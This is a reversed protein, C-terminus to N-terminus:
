REFERVPRNSEDLVQFRLTRRQGAPLTPNAVALRYGGTAIALGAPEHSTAMEGGDHTKAPEDTKPDAASGAVAAIGFVAALIAFYGLLRGPIRQLYRSPTHM